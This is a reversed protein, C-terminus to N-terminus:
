PKPLNRRRQLQGPIADRLRGRQLARRSHIPGPLPPGPQHALRARYIRPGGPLVRVPQAPGPNSGPAPRQGPLDRLNGDPGHAPRHLQRQRPRLLHIWDPLLKTRRELQLDYFNCDETSPNDWVQVELVVTIESGTTNTWTITENNTVSLSSALSPGFCGSGGLWLFLDIDAVATTFFAEAVLTDGAGVCFTYYDKDTKTVYLGPYYGSGLSSASGCDDNDELGDDPSGCPASTIIQIDMDFFSCNPGGFIYLDFGFEAESGSTNTWNVQNM